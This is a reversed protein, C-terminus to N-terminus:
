KLLCEMVRELDITANVQSPPLTEAITLAESIGDLEVFQVHSIYKFLERQLFMQKGSIIKCGFHAPELPNHGGIPSFAGGLIAIDSIAYLNNLEGMADVLVIDSSMDQSESWRTCHMLPATKAILEAVKNFREPHRPVILLKAHPNRKRYEMFGQLIGEEEGEHTSGAVILMGSPKTYKKDAVIKQALKINGVVEVHHAGLAIFRAMDESSQCVILDCKEFVRAYFWKIKYYKPFSRDSIRANLVIVRSGRLACISFLLYWFEAELIVVTKPPRMWFWLWPEFPLYRVEANYNCAMEYGTHTITSIAIKVGKLRELIPAIAKAEGLSCVHFWIDHHNFPPNNYLFFRAPISSRYKKKFSLFFLFPLAVMFLSAALFTYFLDFVKV